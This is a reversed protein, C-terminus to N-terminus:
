ESTEYVMVCRCNIVEGAPGNPDGAFMLSVRGDKGNFSFPKDTKARLNNAGGESADLRHSERTRDDDVAIWQKILTGLGLSEVSTLSSQQAAAHTETRAIMAARMRGIGRVGVREIIMRSMKANTLGQVTADAVTKKIIDGTTTGILIGKNYAEESIWQAIMQEVSFDFDKTELRKFSKEEAARQVMQSMTRMIPEYAKALIETVRQEHAPVALLAANEDSPNKKAAAASENAARQMERAMAVNLRREAILQIRLQVAASRQKEKETLNIM